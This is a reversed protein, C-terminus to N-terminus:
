HQKDLDKKNAVLTQIKPCKSYNLKILCISILVRPANSLNCSLYCCMRHLRCICTYAPSHTAKSKRVKKSMRAVKGQFHCFGGHHLPYVVQMIGLPGGLKIGPVELRDFLVTLQQGTEM